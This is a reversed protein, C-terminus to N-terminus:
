SFLLSFAEVRAPRPTTFCVLVVLSTFSTFLYSALSFYCGWTGVSSVVLTKLFVASAGALRSRLPSSTINWRGFFFVSPIRRTTVGCFRGTCPARQHFDDHVDYGRGRREVWYWESADKAGQTWLTADIEFDSCNETVGRQLRRLSRGVMRKGGVMEGRMVINPLRNDHTRMVHSAHLLLRRLVTVEIRERGTIELVERHPLM